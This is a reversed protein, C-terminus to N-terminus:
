NKKLFFEFRENLLEPFDVQPVHSGDKVMYLESNQLKDHLLRQLRFPIVKDKEGGVVLTRTKIEELSSMIDHTTMEKFLQFFLEPSLLAIRNLYIQIFEMPVTKPNFGGSMIMNQILPNMGSTKWIFNMQEPWKHFIAKVYPLIVEMANSDFMVETVPMVTGGIIIMSKLKQPYLRAYELTVNVGMSHGFMSVQDIKLTNLIEDMDRAINVFTISPIDDAGSSNFHGRFDHLIINFGLNQFFPIQKNWHHNSCVLGYNFMVTPSNKQQGPKFNTQYFIKKGDFSTLYNSILEASM